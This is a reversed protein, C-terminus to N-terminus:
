LTVFRECCSVFPPEDDRCGRTAMGVAAGVAAGDTEALAGTTTSGRDFAFRGVDGLTVWGAAGFRAPAALAGASFRRALAGFGGAFRVIADAGRAGPPGAVGTM